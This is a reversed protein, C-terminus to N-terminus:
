YRHAPTPPGIASQLREGSQNQAGGYYDFEAHDHYTSTMDPLSHVSDRPHYSERDRARRNKKARIFFFFAAAGLLLAGGVGGVVGGVIAKNQDSLGGGSSSSDTTPTASIM